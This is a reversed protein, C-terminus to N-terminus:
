ARFRYGVGRITEIYHPTEPNEEIKKRLNKILGYIRNNVESEAEEYIHQYIQEKTFVRNPSLALYLLLDYEHRTLGVTKDERIVCRQLQDIELSPFRLKQINVNDMFEVTNECVLVSKIKNLIEEESDSFTLIMLNWGFSTDAERRFLNFSNIMPIEGQIAMYSVARLLVFGLIFVLAVVAIQKLLRKRRTYRKYSRM